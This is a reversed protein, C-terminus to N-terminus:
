PKTHEHILSYNSCWRNHVTEGHSFAEWLSSKFLIHLHKISSKMWDPWTTNPNCRLLCWVTWPHFLWTFSKFSKDLCAKREQRSALEGLSPTIASFIRLCLAIKLAARQCHRLCSSHNFASAKAELNRDPLVNNNQFSTLDKPPLFCTRGYFISTICSSSLIASSQLSLYLVRNFLTSSRHSCLATFETILSRECDSGMIVVRSSDQTFAPSSELPFLQPISQIGASSKLISRCTHELKQRTKYIPDHTVTM